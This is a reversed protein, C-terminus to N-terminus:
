RPFRPFSFGEVQAGADMTVFGGSEEPKQDPRFLVEAEESGGVNEDQRDEVRVAYRLVRSVVGGLAVEISTKM